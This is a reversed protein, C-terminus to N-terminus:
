SPPCRRSHAATRHRVFRWIVWAIACFLAAIGCWIALMMFAFADWGDSFLAISTFTVSALLTVVTPILRIFMRKAKFCCLLQLLMAIISLILVIVETKIDLSGIHIM